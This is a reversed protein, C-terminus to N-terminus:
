MIPTIPEPTIVAGVDSLLDTFLAKIVSVSTKLLAVLNICSTDLKCSCFDWLPLLAKLSAISKCICSFSCDNLSKNSFVFLSVSKIVLSSCVSTKSKSPWFFFFLSVRISSFSDKDLPSIVAWCYPDALPPIDLLLLDKVFLTSLTRALALLLNISPSTAITSSTAPLSFTSANSLTSLNTSAVPWFPSTSAKISSFPLINIFLCLAASTPAIVAPECSNNCLINFDVNWDSGLM